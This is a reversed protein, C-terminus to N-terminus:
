KKSLKPKIKNVLRVIRRLLGYFEYYGAQWVLDFTGLYALNQGAFGDKFKTVGPWKLKDVGYFDYVKYGAAQADCIAQWQLLHPAMLHRGENSSAGHVYTATSAFESVLIGALISQEHRALYLKMGSVKLMAQYYAKSHLRFGDRTGTAQLLDWWSSFDETNAIFVEVGKKQALRINYRTKSHMAALLDKQSLSLDLMATQEPELSITKHINKAKLLKKWDEYGEQNDTLSPEFRLFAIKEQQAVKKLEEVLFTWVMLSQVVPGRPAFYYNIALPLSKKILTVVGLLKDADFIGLRKIEHGQAQQFEGWSWSQLFDGGHTAVFNDLQKKDTIETLKM